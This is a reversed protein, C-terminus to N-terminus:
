ESAELREIAATAARAIIPEREANDASAFALDRAQTFADIAVARSAFAGSALRREEIDGRKYYAVALDRQHRAIPDGALVDRRREILDDYLLAAEELRGDATLQNGVKNLMVGVDRQAELNSRDMALEEAIALATEYSAMALRDAEAVATAADASEADSLEVARALGAHIMGMTHHALWTDRRLRADEPHERSLRTFAALSSEGPERAARFAREADGIMADREAGEALAARGALWHAADLQAIARGSTSVVRSRAAEVDSPDEVVLGAYLSEAEAHAALSGEILAEFAGRDEVARSQRALTQGHARHASALERRLERAGAFAEVAEDLDAIVGEIMGNAAEYRRDRAASDALGLRARAEGIIADVDAPRAAVVRAWLRQSEAYATEAELTTGTNRAYSEGLLDGLRQYGAALESVLELPAHGVSVQENLKGLYDSAARVMSERVGTAGRLHDVGDYFEFMVSRALERVSDFNQQARDRETEAIAQQKEAQGWAYTAFGMFAVGGIMLAAAFSLPARHRSAVKTLVYISSDRKAEIPEGRLYRRVDRGLEGANQYRREPSKSLAKLVITVLEADVRGRATVPRAPEARAIADMVDRMSGVVRYPFKGDTLLQYLIVGLSYVDSRTDVGDVRGEAQEPSSWPLSGVFQGTRTMVSSLDGSDELVGSGGGSVGGSVQDGFALKALGFDVVIPRGDSALKVNAPKLDRHIVGKLHAANVAECIQCFLELRETMRGGRSRGRTGGTEFVTRTSRGRTETSEDRASLRKIYRDLPLGGIYSMVYYLAGDDTQGSDLIKVIGPHELQGLVQVERDFRARGSSGAASGHLLKVAVRQGTARQIARYVVGQGGSHILEEVDYGPFFDPPLDAVGPVLASRSKSREFADAQNIANLILARESSRGTASRPAEARDADLGRSSGSGSTQGLTQGLTHGPGPGGNLHGDGRDSM